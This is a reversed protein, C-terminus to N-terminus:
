ADEPLLTVLLKGGLGIRRISVPIANPKAQQQSQQTTAPQRQFFRGYFDSGDNM